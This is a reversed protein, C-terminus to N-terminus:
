YDSSDVGPVILYLTKDAVEDKFMVLEGAKTLVGEKSANITIGAQVLADEVSTGKDVVCKKVGNVGPRAFEIEAYNAGSGSAARSAPASVEGDQANFARTVAAKEGGSLDVLGVGYMRRSIQAKTAM